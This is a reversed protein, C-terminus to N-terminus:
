KMRLLRRGESIVYKSINHVICNMREAMLSRLIVYCPNRYSLLKWVGGDDGEPVTQRWRWGADLGPAM